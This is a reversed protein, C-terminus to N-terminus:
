IKGIEKLIRVAYDKLLLPYIYSRDRTDQFIKSHKKFDEVMIRRIWNFIAKTPLDIRKLGKIKLNLLLDKNHMKKDITYHPM